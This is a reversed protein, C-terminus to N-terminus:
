QLTHQKTVSAMTEQIRKRQEKAYSVVSKLFNTKGKTM